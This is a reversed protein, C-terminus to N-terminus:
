WGISDSDLRARAIMVVEDVSKQDSDRTYLKRLANVYMTYSISIFFVPLFPILLHAL